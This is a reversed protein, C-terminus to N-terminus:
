ARPLLRRAVEERRVVVPLLPWTRLPSDDDDDRGGADVLPRKNRPLGKAHFRWERAPILSSHPSKDSGLTNFVRLLETRESPPSLVSALGCHTKCRRYLAESLRTPGAGVGGSEVWEEGVRGALQILGPKVGGVEVCEEGVRGALRIVGPEVRGVEVWEEGVRGALRIVGPEVRGVEVWEEGVRGALRIVGPKVEGIEM